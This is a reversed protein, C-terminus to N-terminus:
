VTGLASQMGDNELTRQQAAFRRRHISERPFFPYLFNCQCRNSNIQKFSIAWGNEMWDLRARAYQLKIWNANWKKKRIRKGDREHFIRASPSSTGHQAWTRILKRFLFAKRAIKKLNIKMDKTDIPLRTSCTYLADDRHCHGIADFLHGPSHYCLRCGGRNVYNM